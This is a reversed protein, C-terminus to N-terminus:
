MQSEKDRRFKVDFTALCQDRLLLLKTGASLSTAPVDHPRVDGIPTNWRAELVTPQGLM